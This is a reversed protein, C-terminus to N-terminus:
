RLRREDLRALAARRDPLVRLRRPGAGGYEEPILIGFYGMDGMKRRLSDPIDGKVPDLENAVPLVEKMTFDRAISYLMQREKTLYGSTAPSDASARAEPSGYM